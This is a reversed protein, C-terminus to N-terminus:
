KRVARHSQGISIWFPFKENSVKGIVEGKQEYGSLLILALEAKLDLTTSLLKESCFLVRIARLPCFDFEGSRHQLVEHCFEHCCDICKARYNRFVIESISAARNSGLHKSPCQSMSWSTLAAPITVLTM